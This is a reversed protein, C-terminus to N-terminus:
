REIGYRWPMSKDLDNISDQQIIMEFDLAPLRVVNPLESLNLGWSEPLDGEGGQPFASFFALCFIFFLITKKM